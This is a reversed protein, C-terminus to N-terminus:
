INQHALVFRIAAKLQEAADRAVCLPSNEAAPQDMKPSRDSHGFGYFDLGWVDFGAEGL